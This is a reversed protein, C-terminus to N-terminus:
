PNVQSYDTDKIELQLVREGDLHSAVIHPLAHLSVMSITKADGQAPCLRVEFRDPRQETIRGEEIELLRDAYQLTESLHHSVWLVSGGGDKAFRHLSEGILRRSRRDLGELPEDALVLRPQRLLVVLLMVRQREGKSLIRVSHGLLDSTLGLDNCGQEIERTTVGDLIQLWTFVQRVTLDVPLPSQEPHFPETILGIAPARSVAVPNKRFVRVIGSSPSLRGSLLGLLTSKGSGNPGALIVVEGGRIELNVDELLNIAHESYRFRVNRIEALPSPGPM